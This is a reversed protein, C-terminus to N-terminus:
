DYLSILATVLFILIFSLQAQTVMLIVTTDAPLSVENSVSPIRIFTSNM